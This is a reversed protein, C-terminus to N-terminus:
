NYTVVRMQTNIYKVWVYILIFLWGNYTIWRNSIIFLNHQLGQIKQVAFQYSYSIIIIQNYTIIEGVNLFMYKIDSSNDVNVNMEM